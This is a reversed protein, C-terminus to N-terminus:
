VELCNYVLEADGIGGGEEGCGSLFYSVHLVSVRVRICFVFFGPPEGVLTANDGIRPTFTEKGGTEAFLFM